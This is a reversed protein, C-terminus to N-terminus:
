AQTTPTRRRGLLFEQLTGRHVPREVKETEAEGELAGMLFTGTPIRMLTLDLEDLKKTGDLKEV